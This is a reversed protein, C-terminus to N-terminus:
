IGMKWGELKRKKVRKSLEPYDNDLFQKRESCQKELKRKLQRREVKPTELSKELFNLSTLTQLKLDNADTATYEIHEVKFHTEWMYMKKSGKMGAKKFRNDM